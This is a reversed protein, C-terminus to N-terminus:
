MPPLKALERKARPPEKEPTVHCPTHLAHVSPAMQQRWPADEIGSRHVWTKDSGTRCFCVLLPVQDLVVSCHSSIRCKSSWATVFGRSGVDSLKHGLWGLAIGYWCCGIIHNIAVMMLLAAVIKMVQNGGAAFPRLCKCVSCLADHM